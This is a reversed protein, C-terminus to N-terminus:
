DFSDKIKIKALLMSSSNPLNITPHTIIKAQMSSSIASYYNHIPLRSPNFRFARLCAFHLAAQRPSATYLGVRYPCAM